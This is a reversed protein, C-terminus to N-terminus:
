AQAISEINQQWQTLTRPDKRDSRLTITIRRAGQASLWQDLSDAFGCFQKYRRDGLGLLAYELHTLNQSGQMFRQVFQRANDPAAGQGTTSIILLLRRTSQLDNRKISGLASLNVSRDDGALDKIQTVTAKALGEATGTQSAFAVLLPAEAYNNSNRYRYTARLCIGVWVLVAMLAMGWRQAGITQVVDLPEM